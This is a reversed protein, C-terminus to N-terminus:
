DAVIASGFDYAKKQDIRAQNEADRKVLRNFARTFGGMEAVIATTM